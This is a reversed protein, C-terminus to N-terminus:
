ESTFLLYTYIGNHAYTHMCTRMYSHMIYTVNHMAVNHMANVYTYIYAETNTHM